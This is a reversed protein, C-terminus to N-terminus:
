MIFWWTTFQVLPILYQYIIGIIFDVLSFINAGWIFFFFFTPAISYKELLYASNFFKVFYLLNKTMIFGETNMTVFFIIFLCSCTITINWYLSHTLFKCTRIYIYHHIVTQSEWATYQERILNIWVCVLCVCQFCSVM